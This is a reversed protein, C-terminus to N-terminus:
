HTTFGFFGAAAAPYFPDLHTIARLVKIAKEAEGVTFLAGSWLALTSYNPNLATVKEFEAYAEAHRGM